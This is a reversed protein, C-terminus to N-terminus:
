LGWTISSALGWILFTFTHPKIKRNFIDRIYAAYGVFSLIVAIVSIIIKYTPTM